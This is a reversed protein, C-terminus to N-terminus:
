KLGLRRAEAEDTSTFWDSSDELLEAMVAPGRVHRMGFSHGIEHRLTRAPDKAAPDITISGDENSYWGDEREDGTPAVVIRCAGTPEFRVAGRELWANWDDRVDEAMRADVAAELSFVGGCDAPPTEACGVLLSLLTAAATWKWM